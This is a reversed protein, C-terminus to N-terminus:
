SGSRSRCAPAYPRGPLAEDWEARTLVRGAVACARRAWSSPRVDWLYGRGGDYVAAVHTGGNVFATGVEVNPIGPLPSGIPDGTQTDWLRVTGDTASTALMRDDPSFDATLIYGTHGLLPRGYRRFTRGGYIEVRGEHNGLVLLRGDRSFRSWRGWRMPIRAVTKLSPVALVEVRGTDPGRELPVVLARGDPRMAIDRTLLRKYRRTGIEVHRRADWLRVVSDVGATALLRGDGSFTPSWEWDEAARLPRSLPARTRSDWFRVTGHTGTTAITTGDPSVQVGVGVPDRGSQARFRGAFGLTRADVLNVFGWPRAIAITEGDTGFNYGTSSHIAELSESQIGSPTTSEAGFLRGLRRSGSLDWAIVAGDLSASYATRDDPAVAVATVRGAHGRFTQATGGEAVGHVIVTGDDGGTVVARGDATFVASQVSADHHGALTRTTGTRLDLLRVSGDQRGLAALRGDPSVASAWPLGSVGFRRLPALTEADRIVTQRATDSITTLAGPATPAVLLAGARALRAVGGLSRGTRADWRRLVGAPAPNFGEFPAYTVIFTSSGPLFVVSGFAAPDLSPLRHHAIRRLSHGDLVDVAGGQENGSAVV